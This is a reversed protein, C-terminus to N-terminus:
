RGHLRKLEDYKIQLELRRLQFRAEALSTATPTESRGLCRGCTIRVKGHEQQIRLRGWGGKVNLRRRCRHCVRDESAVRALPGQESPKPLRLFPLFSGIHHHMAIPM